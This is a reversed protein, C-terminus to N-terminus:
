DCSAKDNLMRWIPNAARDCKFRSPDSQPKWPAVASSGPWWKPRPPTVLKHCQGSPHSQHYAPFQMTGTVSTLSRLNSSGAQPAGSRASSFIEQMKMVLMSTRKKPPDMKPSSLPKAEIEFQPPTLDGNTAPQHVVKPRDQHQRPEVTMTDSELTKMTEVTDAVPSEDVKEEAIVLPPRELPTEDLSGDDATESTLVDIILPQSTEHDISRDISAEKAHGGSSETATPSQVKRRVPLICEIEECIDRERRELMMDRRKLWQLYESANRRKEALEDAGFEKSSIQSSSEDGSTEVDASRLANSKKLADDIECAISQFM